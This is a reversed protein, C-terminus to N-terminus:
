FECSTLSTHKSIINFIINEVSKNLITLWYFYVDSYFELCVIYSKDSRMSKCEKNVYM